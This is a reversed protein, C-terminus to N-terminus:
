NNRKLIKNDIFQKAQKKTTFLYRVPIIVTVMNHYDKDKLNIEFGKYNEIFFNEPRMAETTM